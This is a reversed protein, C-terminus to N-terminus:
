ESIIDKIVETALTTCSALYDFNVLHYKDEHTDKKGSWDGKGLAQNICVADYGLDIFSSHDSSTAKSAYIPIDLLKAHKEYVGKIYDSPLALEVERNNDGDWGILDFSHVSHVHMDEAKLWKAFASSGILDEEEQDFLALIVHKKRVPLDVLAHLVGYVLAIGSGNDLAGPVDDAKTDYHAGLIVYETSTTTAELTAYFNTGKYPGILMDVGFNVNPHVYPQRHSELGLHDAIHAFFSIALSKEKPSWRSDIKIQGSSTQIAKEGVISQIIHQQLATTEDPIHHNKIEWTQWNPACGYLTILLIFSLLLQRHM